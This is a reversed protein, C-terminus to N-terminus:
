VTVNTSTLFNWINATAREAKKRDQSVGRRIGERGETGLHIKCLRINRGRKIQM